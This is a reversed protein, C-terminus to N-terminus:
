AYSHVPLALHAAAAFEFLEAVVDGAVVVILDVPLGGGPASVRDGFHELNLARLFHVYDYVGGAQGRTCSLTPCAIRRGAVGDQLAEDGRGQEEAQCGF